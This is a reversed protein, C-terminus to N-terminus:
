RGSEKLVQSVFLEETIDVEEFIWEGFEICLQGRSVPDLKKMRELVNVVSQKITDEKDNNM